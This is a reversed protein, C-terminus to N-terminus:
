AATVGDLAVVVPPAGVGAPLALRVGGDVEETSLRTIDGRTADFLGVSSTPTLRVPLTVATPLDADAAPWCLAWVREGVATFRVELGEPTTARPRVWPRTGQLATRIVPSWAALWDLRTLQADPITADEGRPGVNLLLNGGTAVIDALSRQLDDRRLHDAETSTRNFGFGHDM